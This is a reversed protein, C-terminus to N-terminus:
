AEVAASNLATLNVPMSWDSLIQAGAAPAFLPVVSIAVVTIASRFSSAVKM